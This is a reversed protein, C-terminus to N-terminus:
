SSEPFTPDVGERITKKGLPIDVPYIMAARQSWGWWWASVMMWGLGLINWSEHVCADLLKPSEGHFGGYAIAIYPEIHILQGLYQGLWPFLSCLGWQHNELSTSCCGVFLYFHTEPHYLHYTGRYKRTALMEIKKTPIRGATKQFFLLEKEHPVRIWGPFCPLASVPWWKWCGRRQKATPASVRPGSACSSKTAPVVCRPISFISWVSPPHNIYIHPNGHIPPDWFPQNVVSFGMLISSKPTGRNWSVVLTINLPWDDFIDYTQWCDPCEINSQNVKGWSTEQWVLRRPFDRSSRSPNPIWHKRWDVIMCQDYLMVWSMKRVSLRQHIQDIQGPQFLFVM